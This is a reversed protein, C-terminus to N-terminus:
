YQISVLVKEKNDSYRFNGCKLSNTIFEDFNISKSKPLCAQMQNYLNQNQIDDMHMYEERTMSDLMRSCTAFRNKPQKICELAVIYVDKKKEPSIRLYDDCYILHQRLQDRFDSSSIDSLFSNWDNLMHHKNGNAYYFLSSYENIVQALVIYLSLVMRLINKEKSINGDLNQMQSRIFAASENIHDEINQGYQLLKEKSLNEFSNIIQLNGIDTKLNLYNNYFEGFIKNEQDRRYQNYFDRIIQDVGNIKNLTAYFGVISIGTNALSFATGVWSLVQIQPLVGLSNAILSCQSILSDIKKSVIGVDRSILACQFNSGLSSVLNATAVFPNSAQLASKLVSDTSSKLISEIVPKAQEFMTGDNLRVGGSSIKALGKAVKEAAENTISMTITPM